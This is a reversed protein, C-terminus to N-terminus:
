ETLTVYYIAVVAPGNIDIAHTREWGIGLGDLVAQVSKEFPVDRNRQYVAIEYPVIVAHTKNDKHSNNTDLPTLVAYPLEPATKPSWQIQCCPLVEELAAIVDRVDRTAM